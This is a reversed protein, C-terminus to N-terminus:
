TFLLCLISTSCLLVTSKMVRSANPLEMRQEELPNVESAAVSSQSTGEKKISPKSFSVATTADETSTTTTTPEEKEIFLVTSATRSQTDLNELMWSYEDLVEFYPDAGVRTINILDNADSASMGKYKMLYAVLNTVSRNLGYWCHVLVKGGSKRASEIFEVAYDLSGLHNLMATEGSVGEICLYEIDKFLNCKATGSWNIIHTIGDRKISVHNRSAGKNFHHINRILHSTQLM